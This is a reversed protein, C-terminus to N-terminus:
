ADIVDLDDCQQDIVLHCTELFVRRIHGVKEVNGVLLLSRLAQWIRRCTSKRMATSVLSMRIHGRSRLNDAHVTQM